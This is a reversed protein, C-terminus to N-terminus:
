PTLPPHQRGRDNAAAALTAKAVHREKREFHRMDIYSHGPTTVAELASDDIVGSGTDLAEGTTVAWAGACRRDPARHHYEYAEEASCVSSRVVSVQRTKDNFADSGILGDKFYNPHVLRWLPEDRKELPVEVAPAAVPPAAEAPAGCTAAPTGAPPAGPLEVTTQEDTV